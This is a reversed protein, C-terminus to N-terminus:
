VLHGPLRRVAACRDRRPDARDCVAIGSADRTATPESIATDRRLEESEFHVQKAQYPDHRGQVTPLVINDCGMLFLSILISLYKM